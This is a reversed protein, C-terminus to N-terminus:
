GNCFLNHDIIILISYMRNDIIKGLKSLVKKSNPGPFEETLMSPGVPEQALFADMKEKTLKHKSTFNRQNFTLTSSEHHTALNLNHSIRQNFILDNSYPTLLNGGIKFSSVKKIFLRSYLTM